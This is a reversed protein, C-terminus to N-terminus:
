FLKDQKQLYQLELKRIISREPNCPGAATLIYIDSVDVYLCGNILYAGSVSGLQHDRGWSAPKRKIKFNNQLSSQTYIQSLSTQNRGTTWWRMDAGALLPPFRQLKVRTQYCLSSNLNGISSVLNKRLYPDPACCIYVGLKSDLTRNKSGVVRYLIQSRWSILSDCDKNTMVHPGLKDLARYLDTLQLSKTTWSSGLISRRTLCFLNALTISYYGSM